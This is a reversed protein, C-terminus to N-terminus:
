LVLGVALVVIVVSSVLATALRGKPGTLVRGVISGGGALLLQWSASAVFAGAVFLV